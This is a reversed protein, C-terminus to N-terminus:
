VSLPVSLVVSHINLECTIKYWIMKPFYMM